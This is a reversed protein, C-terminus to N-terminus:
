YGAQRLIESVENKTGVKIKEPESFRKEPPTIVPENNEALQKIIPMSMQKIRDTQLMAEYAKVFNSREVGVNESRKIAWIGGIVDLARKEIPTLNYSQEPYRVAEQVREWAEWASPPILRGQSLDFALSRIQAITPPWDSSGCLQLAAALGHEDSVDALLQNWTETTQKTPKWRAPYAEAILQICKAINLENM